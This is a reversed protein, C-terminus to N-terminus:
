EENWGARKAGKLTIFFPKIHDTFCSIFRGLAIVRGTLQQVGKKSTPIQSDMYSQTSYSQGRDGELDGYLRFFKGFQSLVYM